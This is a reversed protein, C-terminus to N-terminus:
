CEVTSFVNEVTPFSKGRHGLYAVEEVSDVHGAGPDDSKVFFADVSM